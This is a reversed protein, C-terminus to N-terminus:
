TTSKELQDLLCRRVDHLSGLTSGHKQTGNTGLWGAGVSSIGM